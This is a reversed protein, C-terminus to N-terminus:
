TQENAPTPAPMGGDVTLLGAVDPNALLFAQLKSVPSEDATSTAEARPAAEWEERIRNWRPWLGNPLDEPPPTFTCYAPLHFVGEELPSEDAETPGILLGAYDCQWAPKTNM